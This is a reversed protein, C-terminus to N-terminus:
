LEHSSDPGTVMLVSWVLLQGVVTDSSGSGTLSLPVSHSSVSM